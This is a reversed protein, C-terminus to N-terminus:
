FLNDIYKINEKSKAMEKFIYSKIIEKKEDTDPMKFYIDLLAILNLSPILKNRIDAGVTETEFYKYEVFEYNNPNIKYKECYDNFLQKTSTCLYTPVPFSTFKVNGNYQYSTDVFEGTEINRLAKFKM